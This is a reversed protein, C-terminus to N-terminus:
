KTHEVYNQIAKHDANIPGLIPVNQLGVKLQFEIKEKNIQEYELGTSFISSKPLFAIRTKGHKNAIRTQM